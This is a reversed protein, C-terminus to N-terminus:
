DAHHRTQPVEAKVFELLSVVAEFENREIEHWEAKDAYATVNKVEVGPAVPHGIMKPGFFLHYSLYRVDGPSGTITTSAVPLGLIRGRRSTIEYTGSLLTLSTYSGNSLKVVAKGDVDVPVRLARGIKSPHRILVL